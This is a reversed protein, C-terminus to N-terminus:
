KDLFMLQYKFLRVVCYSLADPFSHTHVAVADSSRPVSSSPACKAAEEEARRTAEQAAALRLPLYVYFTLIRRFRLFFSPNASYIYLFIIGFTAVDEATDYKSPSMKLQMMHLLEPMGLDVLPAFGAQPFASLTSDVLFMHFFLTRRVDSSLQVEPAAIFPSLCIEAATSPGTVFRLALLPGVLLVSQPM